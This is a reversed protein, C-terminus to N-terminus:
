APPNIVLGADHGTDATPTGLALQYTPGLPVPAPIIFLDVFAEGFRLVEADRIMSVDTFPDTRVGVMGHQLTYVARKIDQHLDWADRIRDVDRVYQDTEAEAEAVWAHAEIVCRDESIIKPNTCMDRPGSSTSGSIALVVRPAGTYSEGLHRDGLDVPREITGAHAPDSTIANVTDDIAHVGAEERHADLVDALENALAVGSDIDDAEPSTIVNVGDAITHVADATALHASMRSRIQNLVLYAQERTVPDIMSITNVTDATAHWAGGTNAIHARYKARVDATRAILAALAGGWRDQMLTGLLDRLDVLADAVNSM